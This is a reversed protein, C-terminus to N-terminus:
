ARPVTSNVTVEDRSAVVPSTGDDVWLTAEYRAEPMYQGDDATLNITGSIASATQSTITIQATSGPMAGVKRLVASGGIRGLAWTVRKGALANTASTITFPISVAEHRNLTIASM